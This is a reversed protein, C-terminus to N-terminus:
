EGDLSEQFAGRMSKGGEKFNRDPDSRQNKRPNEERAITNDRDFGDGGGNMKMCKKMRFKEVREGEGEPLQRRIPAGPSVVQIKRGHSM